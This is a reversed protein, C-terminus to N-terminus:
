AWGWFGRCGAAAILLSATPVRSRLNLPVRSPDLRGLTAGFLAIIMPMPIPLFPWLCMRVQLFMITVTPPWLSPEDNAICPPERLALMLCMNRAREGVTLDIAIPCWLPIM